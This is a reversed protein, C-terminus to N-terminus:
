QLAKPIENVKREGWMGARIVGAFLVAALLWGAVDASLWTPLAPLLLRWVASGVAIAAFGAVVFTFPRMVRILLGLWGRPGDEHVLQAGKLVGAVAVEPKAATHLLRVSFGDGPDLFDFALRVVERAAPDTEVRAGCAPKPNAAVKADLVAGTGGLKARLPDLAVLASGDLTATGSNWVTVTAVSLQPIAVGRFTVAVDGAYDASGPLGLVRSARVAFCLRPAKNGRVYFYISLVAGFVLGVWGKSLFDLLSNLLEPM